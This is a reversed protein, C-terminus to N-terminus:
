KTDLPSLKLDLWFISGKGPESELGVTGGMREVGKKVISLGIGTGEGANSVREFIGFIRKHAQAPIGPGNDKFFLRSMAGEHIIESWVRVQPTVGPTVFKVANGLINSICQTLIAEAGLVTPFTGELQIIASPPQFTPYSELIDRLLKSLDVLALPTEARALRSYSLVDQILRDMRGAASTIRRIYEMGEDSINTGCEEALILAFSQLARLPARLDHSVSYSFSELQEITERLHTTQEIVQKELDEAHRSLQEQALSLAGEASKRTTADMCIGAMRLPQGKADLFLKGRAEIWSVSGDPKIIRYEIRYDTQQELSSRIAGLVRDRDLPHIDRQFSEFRGDFTGPPMGHIVELTPSWIVEGSAITWEWAGMQGAEMAMKLRLELDDTLHARELETQNQKSIDELTGELDQPIKRHNQSPASCLLEEKSNKPTM